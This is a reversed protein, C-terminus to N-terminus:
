KQHDTHSPRACSSFGSGDHMKSPFVYRVAREYLLYDWAWNTLVMVRNRFGILNFLHIVLWMIWAIWGKFTRKGIAVGASKRGIAIMSGRDAYRFALPPKGAMQLLINKAAAVGSQIAVQAVMPLIRAGERISALDGIVYVEPHGALQLSDEVAVRGDRLVPVNSEDPLEEGRVGATWVVTHTGIVEADKLAVRDPSVEAVAAKLRVDVGMDGLQRATYDRINEPMSSVLHGAAELLIIRVESFDITPFDKVLPGHILEALAGSYEVGTAGGGVIVFTL